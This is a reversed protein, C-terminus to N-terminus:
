SSLEYDPESEDWDLLWADLECDLEGDDEWAECDDLLWCDAFPSEECEDFGAFVFLEFAVFLVRFWVLWVLTVLMDALPFACFLEPSSIIPSITMIIMTATTYKLNM